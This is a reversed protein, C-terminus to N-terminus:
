KLRTFLQKFSKAIFGIFVRDRLPFPAKLFIILVKLFLYSKKHYLSEFELGKLLENGKIKLTLRIIEKRIRAAESEDRAIIAADEGISKREKMLINEWNSTKAKPHFRFFSTTLKLKKPKGYQRYLRIFFQHDMTYRIKPDFWPRSLVEREWFVGQQAITQQACFEEFSPTKHDFISSKSLSSGCIVDSSLWKFKKQVYSNAVEWLSNNLYLDDSNLYACIDGTAIKFGKNLADSQGDDGESVWFSLNSSYKELISLTEDRSGGDIIIYELNPYKQNLISNITEEIFEGQNFSPTVISIRPYYPLRM